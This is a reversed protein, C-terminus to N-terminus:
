VLSSRTPLMSDVVILVDDVTIRTMCRFDIPCERLFCPSCEVAHSVIKARAGLPGTAVASTSGFIAVQPVNLAAAIHMPGSDNTVILSCANILGMLRALTTRGALIVAQHKMARAIGEAIRLEEPLGFIVIRASHKEALRDAVSAYRDSLWRKAPGYYAGPNLGIVPEADQIGHSHLIRRAELRDAQRVGIQISPHYRRDEWLRPPLLGAASLIGLYYYVQHVKKVAPDIKCPHTLLMRRADRSYGMRRPIGAKWVILAAEIANQLLIALDFGQGRLESVIRTFGAWGRHAGQKDYEEIEDVFDAASYVDKVWPRVLLTIHAAPFLRRIEKLAPVSMVADGVWNTGRVLIKRIEGRALETM